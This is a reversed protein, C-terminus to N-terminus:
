QYRRAFRSSRISSSDVASNSDMRASSRAYPCAHITSITRTRVNRRNLPHVWDAPKVRECRQVRRTGCGELKPQFPKATANMGSGLTPFARAALM